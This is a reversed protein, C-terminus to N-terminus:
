DTKQRGNETRLRKDIAQKMRDLGQQLLSRPCGFNLRVFGPTDFDAGNSLGVGADEFFKAPNELQLRRADIWALYTAEVHNMSLGPLHSVTEQVLDRNIRLYDLLARRWPEGYQYAAMAATFGMVNVYPVIGRRVRTFRRRLAEDSIVAFACNLGPLNFTKSPSFLTITRAAIPENLAALPIHQKDDLILDGHIEDTCITLDHRESIEALRELEDHDFARGVPNHPNCFLLLKTHETIAAEFREYDIVYRGQDHRLPVKVLDRDAFHPATLFPPYIPTFVMVGDGAQGVARCALNLAVVTGPLWVIWHDEIAWDYLKHVREIVTDVLAQPPVTYGFVGHDARRRLAELVEPPSPFDMDAVWMPLIDQGQYLQWKLSGTHRRDIIQDFDYKM